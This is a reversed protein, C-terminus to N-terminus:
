SRLEACASVAKCDETDDGTIGCRSAKTADDYLGSTHGGEATTISHRTPEQGEEGQATAATRPGLLCLPAESTDRAIAEKASLM